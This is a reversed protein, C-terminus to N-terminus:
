LELCQQNCDDFIADDVLQRICNEIGRIGLGNKCADEALERRRGKTMHIKIKYQDQIHRVPGCGSDM